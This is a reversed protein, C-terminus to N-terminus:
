LLSGVFRHKVLWSGKSCGTGEEDRKEEKSFYASGCQFRSHNHGSLIPSFDSYSSNCVGWFQATLKKSSFRFFLSNSPLTKQSVQRNFNEFAVAQLMMWGYYQKNCTTVAVWWYLHCHYFFLITTVTTGGMVGAEKEISKKHLCCYQQFGWILILTRACRCRMKGCTWHFYNDDALSLIKSIGCRGVM